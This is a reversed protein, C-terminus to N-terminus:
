IKELIDELNYSSAQSKEAETLFQINDNFETEFFFRAIVLNM